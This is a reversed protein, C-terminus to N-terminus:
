IGRLEVVKFEGQMTGYAFRGDKQVSTLSNIKLNTTLVAVCKGSYIDWLRITHDRSGTLIMKQGPITRIFVVEGIHGTFVRICEGTALDWQRVTCDSSGSFLTREEEEVLELSSVFGSHGRLQLLIEHKYIDWYQVSGDGCGFYLCNKNDPIVRTTINSAMQVTELCMGTNRDWVKFTDDTSLSLLQRGDRFFSNYIVPSEHGQYIKIKQNTELDWEIVQKDWGCSALKKRDDSFCIDLIGENHGELICTCKGTQPDWTRITKDLSASIIRQSVDDVIIKKIHAKHGILEGTIRGTKLDRLQIVKRTSNLIFNGSICFNVHNVNRNLGFEQSPSKSKYINWIRVTNDNQGGGGSIIYKMDPTIRLSVVPGVHGEVTKVCTFTKLNWVKITRDMSASILFRGDHTTELCNIAYDHGYMTKLCKGSNLDWVKIAVKVKRDDYGCCTFLIKNDTSLRVAHGIDEIGTFSRICNKGPIDWIHIASDYGGSVGIKGDMSIHVCVVESNHKHFNAICKRTTTEWVKVTGDNSGSIVYQGDPTIKLDNVSHTHGKLEGMPELDKYNWLKIITDNSGGSTVILNLDPTADLTKLYDIHPRITKLCEGSSLDWFKLSNDNSGTAAYKGDSTISVGLVRETHEQLIRICPNFPNFEERQEPIYLLNIRNNKELYKDLRDAFPGSGAYNYAQQLLYGEINGYRYLLHSQSDLFQRYISLIDRNAPTTRIREIENDIQQETWPTLSEMKIIGNQIGEPNLVMKNTYETMSSLYEREELNIDRVEPLVTFAAHYDKILEYIMKHSCKRIMFDFDLLLDILQNYREGEILHFPLYTLLYSNYVGQSYLKLLYECIVMRCSEMDLIYKRGQGAEGTLWDTVSKHYPSFRGNHEPFFASLTQMRRKIEFESIKVIPSLERATFPKKLCTIAELIPRYDDYNENGSFIRDFFSIYIGILGDPFSSPNNIDIRETEIGYIFQKVYLFNGESKRIILDKIQRIDPESSKIKDSINHENFKKNLYDTIDHVNEFCVPDIEHPKYKSLLDTIDPIKRSSLMVKVLAPLDEIRENLLRVINNNTDTWSEDLADILIVVPEDLHVSKLPDAILRRFLTGSNLRTLQEFNLQRLAEHYGKIQTALQAAISKVFVDPNVSDALSSICFHFAMVNPHRCALQAMIASKGIGPDGTILFVRSSSQKLWYDFEKFLWQRGTFDKTMRSVDVGFDLPKLKSFIDAYSGEVSAKEHLANVIRSFSRKYNYDLTWEQFDVWDLRYISLPPRCNVVMVPVIKRNHFRAMSIEDLCVGDPRRVAYPTLLSIFIDHSLIAEEIQEEWSCGSKIQHKDIWVDHGLGTLDSAIKGALLQADKRGYSIFIRYKGSSTQPIITETLEGPKEDIEAFIVESDKQKLYTLGVGKKDEAMDNFILHERVKEFLHIDGEILETLVGNTAGQNEKLYNLIRDLATEFTMHVTILIHLTLNLLILM